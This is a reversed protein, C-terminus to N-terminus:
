SRLAQSATICAMLRYSSSLELDFCLVQLHLCLVNQRHQSHYGEVRTNLIKWRPLGKKLFLINLATWKRHLKKSLWLQTQNEAKDRSLPIDWEM